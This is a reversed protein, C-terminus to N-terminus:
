RAWRHQLQVGLSKGLSTNLPDGFVTQDSYSMTWSWQESQLYSLSLAVTDWREQGQWSRSGDKFQTEIPDEQTRTLSFGARYMAWNYGFGFGLNSGRDPRVQGQVMSTSVHKEFSRHWELLVFVDWLAWSKTLMTGAGIAWFGNGRSDLGGVESDARSKGTPITGQIFGIGKPRYPNYNWDSLYEYSLSTAIDGLGSYSDSGYQRQIIPMSMGAQWRDSIIHAGELKITQVHQHQEWRRWIGQSDVNDVTVDMRGYSASFQARDDSIIMTPVSMGGGCCAASHAIDSFALILFLSSLSRLLPATWKNVIQSIM